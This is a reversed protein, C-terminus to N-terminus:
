FDNLIGTLNAVASKIRHTHKTRNTQQETKEYRSILAASSLITALPTRFEHSAMSVFRSKLEGLEKEKSLSLRLEEEQSKLKEEVIAREKIEEELQQNTDLLKNVVDELQYTREAVKVELEKNLSLIRNQALKIDTLDHIIGTYIVRDHLPVKSVALRFPFTVGSKKRGM